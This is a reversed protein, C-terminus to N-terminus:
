QIVRGNISLSMTGSQVAACAQDRLPKNEMATLMAQREKMSPHFTDFAEKLSSAPANSLHLLAAKMTAPDNACAGIVDARLEREVNMGGVLWSATFFVALAIVGAGAFAHRSPLHPAIVGGAKTQLLDDLRVVMLLISSGALMGLLFLYADNPLAFKQLSSLAALGAGIVVAAVAIGRRTPFVILFPFLGIAYMGLIPLLAFEQNRAMMVAHGVEHAATARILESHERYFTTQVPHGLRIEVMGNKAPYSDKITVGAVKSDVFLLDPAKIGYSAAVHDVHSKVDAVLSAPMEVNGGSISDSAVNNATPMIAVALIAALLFRIIM